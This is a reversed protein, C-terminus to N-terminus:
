GFLITFKGYKTLISLKPTSPGRGLGLTVFTKQNKKEFFFQKDGERKRGKLKAAGATV